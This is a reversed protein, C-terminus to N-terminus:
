GLHDRGHLFVVNADVLENLKRVRQQVEKVVAEYREKLKPDLEKPLLGAKQMLPLARAALERYDLKRIYVGNM